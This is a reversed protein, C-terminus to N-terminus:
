IGMVHWRQEQLFFHVLQLGFRVLRVLSRHINNSVTQEEIQFPLVVLLAVCKMLSALNRLSGVGRFVLM